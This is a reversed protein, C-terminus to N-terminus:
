NFVFLIRAEIPALERLYATWARFLALSVHDKKVEQWSATGLTEAEELWRSVDLCSRWLFPPDMIPHYSDPAILRKFAPEALVITDNHRAIKWSDARNRDEYSFPNSVDVYERNPDAQELEEMREHRSKAMLFTPAFDAQTFTKDDLIVFLRSLIADMVCIGARSRGNFCLHSFRSATLKELHTVHGLDIVEYAQWIRVLEEAKPERDGGEAPPDPYRQPRMEPFLILLRAEFDM